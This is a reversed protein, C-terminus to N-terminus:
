EYGSDGNDGVTDRGANCIAIVVVPLGFSLDSQLIMQDFLIRETFNIQLRMAEIM